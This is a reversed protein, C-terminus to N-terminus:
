HLVPGTCHQLRVCSTLSRIACVALRAGILAKEMELRSIKMGQYSPKDSNGDVTQQSEIARWDSNNTSSANAAGM